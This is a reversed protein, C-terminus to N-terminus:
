GTIGGPKYNPNDFLPRPNMLNEFGPQQNQQQPPYPPVPVSQENM